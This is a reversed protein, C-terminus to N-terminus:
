EALLREDPRESVARYGPIVGSGTLFIYTSCTLTDILHSSQAAADIRLVGLSTMLPPFLFQSNGM